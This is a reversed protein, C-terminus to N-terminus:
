YYSGYVNSNMRRWAVHPSMCGLIRCYGDTTEQMDTTCAKSGYSKEM